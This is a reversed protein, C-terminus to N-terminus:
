CGAIYWQNSESGPQLFSFQEQYKNNGNVSIGSLLILPLQEDVPLINLLLKVADKATMEGTLHTHLAVLFCVSVIQAATNDNQQHGM